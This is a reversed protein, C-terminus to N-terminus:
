GLGFVIADVKTELGTQIGTERYPDKKEFITLAPAIRKYIQHSYLILYTSLGITILGVLTILGMDIESLHGLSVGLAAFILSFESIQAVTLGALFGTRSRYGMVGMIIMVIIPNGILVFLSFIVAEKLQEGLLSLELESGLHIFFFFLLFDRLSVLRGSIIERFSTSALSVGAMFAGVEKSFGMLDSASALTVAWAISFLILLEQSKALFQVLGPLIYKMMLWVFILLAAGKVLVEIVARTAHEGTQKGFASLVIMVLVVVLDQVILFGLAIQGHLSDIEKKDSLLKVIIITSSFTLAVAIYISVISSFGLLLGLFYGIVSTFIVQGLGTILAIPGTSKILKLDLKLGVVFLLLTIGIEALLAIKDVSQVINLFTPGILIGVAIFSVILPQRILYGIGGIVAAIILIASFELFPEAQNLDFM